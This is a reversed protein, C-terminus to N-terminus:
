PGEELAMMALTAPWLTREEGDDFRVSVAGNPLAHEAPGVITLVRSDHRVRRQGANVGAERM